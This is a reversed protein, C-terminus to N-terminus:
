LFTLIASILFRIVFYGAPVALAWLRQTGNLKRLSYGMGIILSVAIIAYAAWQYQMGSGSLWGAYFVATMLIIAIITTGWSIVLGWLATKWPFQTIEQKSQNHVRRKRVRQM